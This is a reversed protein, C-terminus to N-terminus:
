DQHAEDTSQATEDSRLEEKEVFEYPLRGTLWVVM